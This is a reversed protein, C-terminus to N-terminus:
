NPNTGNPQLSGANTPVPQGNPCFSLGFEIGAANASVSIITGLSVSLQCAQDKTINLAALFYQEAADRDTQLDDGLLTIVFSHTMSYYVIKFNPDDKVVADNEADFVQTQPNKYFDKVSIEGSSSPISLTGGNVTTPPHRVPPPQNNNIGNDINTPATNNTNGNQNMVPNSPIISNTPTSHNLQWFIFGGALFLVAFLTNLIIIFTKKSM